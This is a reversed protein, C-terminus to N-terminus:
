DNSSHPCEGSFLSLLVAPVIIQDPIESAKCAHCLAVWIIIITLRLIKKWSMYQRTNELWRYEGKAHKYYITLSIVSTIPLASQKVFSKVPSM